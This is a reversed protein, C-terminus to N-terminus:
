GTPRRPLTNESEPSSGESPVVAAKLPPEITMSPTFIYSGDRPRTSVNALTQARTRQVVPRDTVPHLEEYVRRLEAAGDGTGSIQEKGRWRWEATMQDVYAFVYGAAARIHFEQDALLCDRRWSGIEALIDRRVIMAQGSIPTYALAETPTASDNFVVANFGSTSFSHDDERQQYRILTNGHAVAAGSRLMAAMLAEVHDPQLWDDDALLQVYTGQAAEVGAVVALAVGGHPVDILRAFPFSEVIDDVADGGDNVIVAEIRPYTQQALCDLMRRLDDRRNYTPTIVSVLPLQEAPLTLELRRPTRPPRPLERVSAPRGVAISAAVHIERLATMGYTVVDRVFEHAGATLPAVVGYGAQAFAVAAGPDEPEVCVVCTATALAEGVAPDNATCFKAASAALTAGDSTVCTVAGRYEALAFAHYAVFLSPREPAWVVISPQAHVRRAVAPVMPAVMVTEVPRPRKCLPVLRAYETFSRVLMADVLAYFESCIRAFPADVTSWLDGSTKGGALPLSGAAFHNITLTQNDYDAVQSLVSATSSLIAHSRPDDYLLMGYFSDGRERRAVAALYANPLTAAETVIAEIDGLGRAYHEARKGFALIMAIRDISTEYSLYNQPASLM